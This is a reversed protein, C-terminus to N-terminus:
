ARTRTGLMRDACELIVRIAKDSGPDGGQYIALPVGGVVYRMSGDRYAAITEEKKDGEAAITMVAGLAVTADSMQPPTGWSRLATAAWLRVRSEAQQDQTLQQLLEVAQDRRGALELQRAEYLTRMSGEVARGSRLSELADLSQDAYLLSVFDTVAGCPLIDWREGM